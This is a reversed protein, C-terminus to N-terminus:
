EFLKNLYHFIIKIIKNIQEFFLKINLKSQNGKTNM